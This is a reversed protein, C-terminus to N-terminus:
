KQVPTLRLLRVSHGEMDFDTKYSGAGVSVREKLETLVSLKRYKERNKFFVKVGPEGYLLRTNGEYRGASPLLEVGAARCDADFAYAWTTHKADIRSKVCVWETGSQMRLDRIVLHVKEPVKRRREARHNYVLVFLDEGKRCAIAGCDAASSADVDVTLRQGGSMRDLMAIVQTRPHLLGSTTQSWEYVQRIGYKYVRDAMGAYFSAAWETTDGGWLRQGCDDHLVTFEGIALQTERFQPYRALRTRMLNVADDFDSLPRGVRAYWSCSFWDMRTGVGGTVANTGCGAHDIIDLGWMGRTKTGFQGDIPNLINGPGIMAEPLVRSLAAVTHDYHAFYQEKTGTWHGPNLDPECGVRFWWQSVKEKGFADIMAQIASSVYRAWVKEDDPPATNGYTNEQPEKNMAFPTNDLDIWPTYGGDLMAQLQAIMGSFDVQLEGDPSVGKFWVNQDRYRGGLLYVANIQRIFPQSKALRSAYGPQLFRHPGNCNAVTWFRYCEGATQDAQVTVTREGPTLVPLSLTETTFVVTQLVGPWPSKRNRAGVECTAPWPNMQRGYVTGILRGDVRLMAQIEDPSVPVGEPKRWSFQVRHETGAPWSLSEACSVESFHAKGGKYVARLKGERFFLTAHVHSKSQAHFLLQDGAPPWEAPLRFTFDVQGQTASLWPGTPMTIGAQTFVLGEQTAKVDAGVKSGAPLNALTKTDLRLEGATVSLLPLLLALFSGFWINKNKKM